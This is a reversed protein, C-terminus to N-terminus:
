KREGQTEKIVKIVFELQDGDLYITQKKNNSIHREFYLANDEVHYKAEIGTYTYIITKYFSEERM